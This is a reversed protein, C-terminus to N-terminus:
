RAATMLEIVAAAIVTLSETTTTRLQSSIIPEGGAFLPEYPMRLVKAVNLRVFADVAETEVMPQDGPGDTVIVVTRPLLGPDIDAIDDLMRVATLAADRRLPVPVVLVDAHSVAWQWSGALQNDGTDAILIERHRSMIAALAGAQTADLPATGALGQWGVILDEGAPQRTMWRALAAPRERIEDAADLLAVVNQSSSPSVAARDALSGGVEGLDACVVSGAGRHSAMIAALGLAVPTKGVGGKPNAITVMKFEPIPGVITAAATRWRMEASAPTPPLSLRLAANLRGRLGRRAPESTTPALRKGTLPARTRPLSDAAHAPSTGTSAPASSSVTFAAEQTPPSTGKSPTRSAPSPGRVYTMAETTVAVPEAAAAPAPADPPANGAGQADPAPVLDAPPHAVTPAADVVPVPTSPASATAAGDPAVTVFRKRGGDTITVEVPTGAAAARRTSFRHIEVSLGARDGATLEVPDADPWM